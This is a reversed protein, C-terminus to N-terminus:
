GQALLTAVQDRYEASAPDAARLDIDAPSAPGLGLETARAIQEQEFIPPDMIARNAGLRKLCALGVCDMAVRNTAALMVEGKKRKGTMPGGDVFADVGDLVILDPTFATNLEAIMLRQHPSSHLASMYKPMQQQGPLCGVGLKLSMTFVGGYQHTKLCCTEVLCKAELVPRAVRFGEPWHFDPRKIEIWDAEPLDDFVILGVDKAALLPRVGKAEIVRATSQWSREGLTISKAGLGWLEDILSVLTENDTSGPVPDATNFNPKLLIQRGKIPNRNADLELGALASRVGAARSDTHALSVLSM